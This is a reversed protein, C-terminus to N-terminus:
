LEADSNERVWITERLRAVAYRYRSAATNSSIRLIDAIQAFTLEGWVHMVTVQLQDDPLGALGRRLSMEAVHDAEPPEFWAEEDLGVSRQKVKIENLAANRVCTFVYAKADHAEHLRGDELLRLFVQHVVDQARAQEGLILRAFLVLAASHERYLRDIADRHSTLM